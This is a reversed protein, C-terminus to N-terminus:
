DAKQPNIAQEVGTDTAIIDAFLGLSYRAGEYWRKDLGPHKELEILEKALYKALEGQYRILVEPKERVAIKMM